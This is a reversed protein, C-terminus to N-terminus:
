VEVSERLELYAGGAVARSASSDRGSPCGEGEGCDGEGGVGFGSWGCGAIRLRGWADVRVDCVWRGRWRDERRWERWLSGELLEDEDREGEDDQM